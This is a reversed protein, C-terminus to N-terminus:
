ERIAFVNVLVVVSAPPSKQREDSAPVSVFTKEVESKCEPAIGSVFDRCVTSTAVKVIGYAQSSTM